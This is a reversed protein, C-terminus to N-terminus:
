NSDESTTRDSTTSSSSKDSGPLPGLTWRWDRRRKRRGAVPTEPCSDSDSESSSSDRKEGIRPGRPRPSGELSSFAPSNSQESPSSVSPSSPFNPSSSASSEILLSVTSSEQESYATTEVSSVTSDSSISSELDSHALTYKVTKIEEELPTRFSVKKEAPFLPRVPAMKRPIFPRAPSNSLISTVNHPQKYPISITASENSSASTLTSSLTSASNPTSSSQPNPPASFSSDISLRPKSPRGLAPAASAPVDYANSFTNRVTPSVASLTDLRLSTSGKGFTRLQTTNIHLKPRPSAVEATTPPRAQAQRQPLIALSM